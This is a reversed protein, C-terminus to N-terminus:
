VLAPLPSVQSRSCGHRAARALREQLNVDFQRLEKRYFYLLFLVTVGLAVLMLPFSWLMFDGFTLGGKTGIYIGVPNGMM